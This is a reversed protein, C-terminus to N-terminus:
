GALTRGGDVSLIQGTIFPAETALFRVTAAIDAPEGLRQLPTRAITDVRDQDSYAVKDDPWLIAGPAVGNVRIDPALELALSRTLSALGAKGACYASFENLPREAHVDIINVVCGGSHRLGPLLAQTLFFPGKLNSNVMSDFSSESCGAFPTPRFGSANNVLAALEGQTDALVAQALQSVQNRDTLDAQYLRCSDPRQSNLDNALAQAATASRRYHLAISFGAAHLHRCIEAGIRQAAGTVLATKAM